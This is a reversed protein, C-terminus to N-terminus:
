FVQKKPKPYLQLKKPLLYHGSYKLTRCRYYKDLCHAYEECDFWEQATLNRPHHSPSMAPIDVEGSGVRPNKYEDVLRVSSVSVGTFEKWKPYAMPLKSLDEVGM